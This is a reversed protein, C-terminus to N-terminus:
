VNAVGQILGQVSFCPCAKTVGPLDCHGVMRSYPINYGDHLMFLWRKLSNYQEVTFNAEPRGDKGKGGVLVIGITNENHGLAHAGVEDFLVDGDGDLDRGTEFSGDRRIVIAYAIDAWGKAKHWVRIENAGIDMDFPTDTCHVVVMDKKM